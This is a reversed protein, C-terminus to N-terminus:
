VRRDMAPDIAKRQRFLSEVDCICCSKNVRIILYKSRWRSTFDWSEPSTQAGPRVITRCRASDAGGNTPRRRSGRPYELPSGGVKMGNVHFPKPASRRKWSPFAPGRRAAAIPHLHRIPSIQNLSPQFPFLTASRRNQIIQAVNRGAGVRLRRPKASTAPDRPYVPVAGKVPPRM